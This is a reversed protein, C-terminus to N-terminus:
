EIASAASTAKCFTQSAVSRPWNANLHLCNAQRDGESAHVWTTRAVRIGRLSRCM